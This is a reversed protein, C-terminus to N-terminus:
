ENMSDETEKQLRAQEAEYAAKADETVGETIVSTKKSECGALCTVPIAFLLLM